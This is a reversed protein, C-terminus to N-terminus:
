KILIRILDIGESVLTMLGMKSPTIDHRTDVSIPMVNLSKKYCLRLFELDAAFGNSQTLLFTEKAKSNLAKLGGQTDPVSMNLLYKNVIQLMNSICKRALSLNDYYSQDRVGVFVDVEPTHIHTIMQSMSELTYPIDADTFIAWENKSIEFGKKLANGKGYNRDSQYWTLNKFHASILEQDSSLDVTSGDDIIILHFSYKPFKSFLLNLREVLISAWNEEPDFVPIVFDVNKLQSAM